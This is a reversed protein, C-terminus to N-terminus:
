PESMVVEMEEFGYYDSPREVHRREGVIQKM